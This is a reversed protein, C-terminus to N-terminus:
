NQWKFFGKKYVRRPEALRAGNKLCLNLIEREVVVGGHSNIECMNERTYSKPSVFYSVLVEDVIENKDRDFINGYKMSYGVIEKDKNKPKFIKNLIEFANEGSMRIIGIGSNSLGTSIAVITDEM